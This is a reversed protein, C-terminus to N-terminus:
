WCCDEFETMLATPQIAFDIEFKDFITHKFDNLISTPLLWLTVIKGNNEDIGFAPLFISYRDIVVDSITVGALISTRHEKSISFVSFYLVRFSNWNVNWNNWRKILWRGFKTWNQNTPSKCFVHHNVPRQKSMGEIAVFPYILNRCECLINHFVFHFAFYQLYILKKWNLLGSYGM